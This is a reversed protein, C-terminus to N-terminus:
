AAGQIELSYSPEPELAEFLSKVSFLGSREQWCFVKEELSPQVKELKSVILLQGGGGNGSWKLTKIISPEVGGIENMSWINTVSADKYIAIADLHPLCCEFTYTLGCLKDKWFFMMRWSGVVFSFSSVRNPM